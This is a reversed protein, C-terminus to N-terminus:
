SEFGSTPNSVQAGELGVCLFVLVPHPQVQPFSWCGRFSARGEQTRLAAASPLPAEGRRGRSGVDLGEGEASGLEM